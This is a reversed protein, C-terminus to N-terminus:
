NIVTKSRLLGVSKVLLSIYTFIQVKNFTCKSLFKKATLLELHAVNISISFKFGASDM